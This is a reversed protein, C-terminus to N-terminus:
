YSEGQLTSSPQPTYNRGFFAAAGPSGLKAFVVGLAAAMAFVGITIVMLEVLPNEIVEDRKRSGAFLALVVVVVVLPALWAPHGKATAQQTADTKASQM